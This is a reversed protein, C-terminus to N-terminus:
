LVCLTPMPPAPSCGIIPNLEDSLSKLDDMAASMSASVASRPAAQGVFASAVGASGVLCTKM